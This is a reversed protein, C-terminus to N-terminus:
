KYFILGVNFSFYLNKESNVMSSFCPQGLCNMKAAVNMDMRGVPFIVGAEPAVGWQWKRGEFVLVGMEARQWAYFGGINIGAYPRLSSSDGLYVHANLMVPFANMFRIQTGVFDAEEGIAGGAQRFFLQQGFSGGVSLYPTVMKRADLSFGLLSPTNIFSQMEKGPVAINYNLAMMWDQSWAQLSLVFAFAIAWVTKM